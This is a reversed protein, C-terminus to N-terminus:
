VVESNVPFIDYYIFKNIWISKGDIENTQGGDTSSYYWIITHLVYVHQVHRQYKDGASNSTMGSSIECGTTSAVCAGQSQGGGTWGIMSLRKAVMAAGPGGADGTPFTVSGADREMATQVAGAPTRTEVPGM